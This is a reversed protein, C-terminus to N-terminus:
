RRTMPRVRRYFAVLRTRETPLGVYGAVVAAATCVLARGVGEGPAGREGAPATAPNEKRKRKRTRFPHASGCPSLSRFCSRM